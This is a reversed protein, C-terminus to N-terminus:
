LKKKAKYYKKQKIYVVAINNLPAQKSSEDKVDKLAESYYYIADDYISLEKDAIGFFNNVAALYNKDKRIYPLAETLTEKSGYYDGNMQQIYAMQILNFAINSSDKLKEFAIKSKNFNYFSTNFNSKQFHAIAKEQLLSAEKKNPNVTSSVPTKDKCSILFFFILLCFIPSRLM